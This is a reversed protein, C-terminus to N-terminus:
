KEVMEMMFWVQSIAIAINVMMTSKNSAITTSASQHGHISINMTNPRVTQGMEM